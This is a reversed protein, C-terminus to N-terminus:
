CLRWGSPQIHDEYYASAFGLVTEGISQIRAKAQGARDALRELIGRSDPQEPATTQASTSKWAQLLFLLLSIKQFRLHM